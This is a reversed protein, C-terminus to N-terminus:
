EPWEAGPDLVGLARRVRSVLEGSHFPKAIFGSAGLWKARTRDIVGDHGSLMIIRTDAFEKKSHLLRLIEYGSIRPMGIDLLLIRPPAIAGSQWASLAEFGGPYAVASIGVRQLSIEVVYRVAMSDDIVAVLPSAVMESDQDSVSDFADPDTLTRTARSRESVISSSSISPSSGYVM